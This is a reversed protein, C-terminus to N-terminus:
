NRSWTDEAMAQGGEVSLETPSEITARGSGGELSVEVTYSGDELQLEGLTM